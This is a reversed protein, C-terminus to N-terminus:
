ERETETKKILFVAEPSYKGHMRRDYAHLFLFGIIMFIFGVGACIVDSKSFCHAIGYGCVLLILPLIYVLFAAGIVKGSKLELVVTDGADAGCMDKAEITQEVGPCGVKCAACSEGCASGRKVRVTLMDKNKKVVTGECQM